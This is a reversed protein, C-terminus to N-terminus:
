VPGVFAQECSARSFRSPRGSRARCSPVMLGLGEGLTWWLCLWLELLVARFSPGGGYGGAQEVRRRLLPPESRARDRSLARLFGRTELSWRGGTETALVVLRCRRHRETTEVGDRAVAGPRPLGDARVPSVMTADVALQAGGFIGLGDM